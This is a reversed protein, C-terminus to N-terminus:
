SYSMLVFAPQSDAGADISMEDYYGEALSRHVSLSRLDIKVIETHMKTRANKGEEQLRYRDNENSRLMFYLYGGHKILEGIDAYNQRFITKVENRKWDIGLIRYGQVLYFVDTAEDIILSNEGQTTRDYIGDPESRPFALSSLWRGQRDFRELRRDLLVIVEDEYPIIRVGAIANENYGIYSSRYERKGEDYQYLYGNLYYWTLGSQRDQYWEQPHFHEFVTKKMGATSQFPQPKASMQRLAMDTSYRYATSAIHLQEGELALQYPAAVELKTKIELKDNLLLVRSGETDAVIWGDAVRAFDRAGRSSFGEGTTVTVKIPLEGIKVLENDKYEYFQRDVLVYWRSGFKRYTKAFSYDSDQHEEDVAQKVKAPISANTNDEEFSWELVDHSVWDFSHPPRNERKVTVNNIASAWIAEPNSNEAHILDHWSIYKTEGNLEFEMFSGKAAALKAGQTSFQTYIPPNRKKAGGDKYQIVELRGPSAYTFTRPNLAQWDKQWLRPEAPLLSSFGNNIFTLAEQGDQSRFRGIFQPSDELFTVQKADILEYGAYRWADNNPEPIYVIGGIEDTFAYISTGHFSQTDSFYHLGQAKETKKMAADDIFQRNLSVWKNSSPDFIHESFGPGNIAKVFFLRPEKAATMTLVEQPGFFLEEQTTVVPKPEIRVAMWDGRRGEKGSGEEILQTGILLHEGNLWAQASLPKKWEHLVEEGAEDSIYYLHLDQVYITQPGRKWLVQPEKKDTMFEGEMPQWASEGADPLEISVAPEVAPVHNAKKTAISYFLVISLTIVTISGLIIFTRMRRNM